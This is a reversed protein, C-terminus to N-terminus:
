AQHDACGGRLLSVDPGALTDSDQQHPSKNSICFSLMRLVRPQVGGPPSLGQVLQGLPVVLLQAVAGGAVHVALLLVVHAGEEIGLHHTVWILLAV